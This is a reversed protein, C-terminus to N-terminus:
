QIDALRRAHLDYAKQVEGRFRELHIILPLKIEGQTGGIASIFAMPADSVNLALERGALNLERGVFERITAEEITM